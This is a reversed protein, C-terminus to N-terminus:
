PSLDRDRSSALMASKRVRVVELVRGAGTTAERCLNLVFGLGKRSRERRCM